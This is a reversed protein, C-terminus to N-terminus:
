RGALFRGLWTSVTAHDTPTALTAEGAAVVHAPIRDSRAAMLAAAYAPDFEPHGQIGLASGLEFAAVPAHDSTALLEAGEPLSTVQDQHSVILRFREVPPTMWPRETVVRAEHVGVGWGAAARGVEGGLHHAILQHGFCVGVVAVEADVLDRVFTGLPAIWPLDDYASHRSGTILYADHEGPSPLPAGGVVDIRDTSVWPAHAAFRDAFMPAYDDGVDRLEAPVHDCELVGVRVPRPPTDPTM